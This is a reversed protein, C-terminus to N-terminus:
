GLLKEIREALDNYSMNGPHYLQVVGERDVLVITPTTSVGFRVFNEGSVPATMWAPVPYARHYDGRLYAMEQEPTADKGRAVYGYLQTPGVVELGQGNYKGHLAELIPKQEKCDGCWHAWFYFLAVKGEWGDASARKSGLHEDASLRPMPKGELSLLHINKQIRTEISTGKYKASQEQLFAVAEGRQGAANQAHGLVEIAAGLALPLSKDADLTRIKLLELSGDFAEQAYKEAVDWQKAFSAGRGLWSVALLWDATLEHQSSRAQELTKHANPVDRAFALKKMRNILAASQNSAGSLALCVVAILGLSILAPKHRRM